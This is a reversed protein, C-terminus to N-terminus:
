LANRYHNRILAISQLPEGGFLTAQQELEPFAERLAFPIETTATADVLTSLLDLACNFCAFENQASAILQIVEPVLLFAVSPEIHQEIDSFLGITMEDEHAYPRGWGALRAEFLARMAAADGNIAAAFHNKGLNLVGNM